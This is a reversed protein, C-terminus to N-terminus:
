QKLAHYFKDFISKFYDADLKSSSYPDYKYNKTLCERYFSLDNSLNLKITIISTSSLISVQSITLYSIARIWDSPIFKRIVHDDGDFIGVCYIYLLIYYESASIFSKIEERVKDGDGLKNYTFAHREELNNTYYVLEVKQNSISAFCRFMQNIIDDSNLIGVINSSRFKSAIDESVVDVPDKKNYIINYVRNHSKYSSKDKLIKHSEEVEDIKFSKLPTELKNLRNLTMDILQNNYGQHIYRPLVVVYKRDSVDKGFFKLTKESIYEGNSNDYHVLRSYIPLYSKYEGDEFVVSMFSSSSSISVTGFVSEILGNIEDVGISYMKVYGLSNINQDYDVVWARTSPDYVLIDKNMYRYSGKYILKHYKGDKKSLSLLYEKPHSVNGHEDLGDYVSIIDTKDVMGFTPHDILNKSNVYGNYIDSWVGDKKLMLSGRYDEILASREYYDGDMLISNHRNIWKGHFKSYNHDPVVMSGDTYRMYVQPNSRNAFYDLILKNSPIDIYGFSDMYPYYKYKWGILSITINDTRDGYYTHYNKGCMFKASFWNKMKQEDHDFRTYIRDLFYRCEFGRGPDLKWVLARALLKNDEVYVLLQCVDPNQVYIDLYEQCEKHKMCSSNLTGGGSVYMTYLYWKRIDEGSVLFIDDKKYKQDWANKYNNVFNEIEKDAFKIGNFDLIQRISRGIKSVNISKDFPNQDLDQIRKVHADNVFSIEDNNSSTKIYNLNTKVDKGFLNMLEKAVDNGSDSVLKVLELFNQDAVLISELIKFLNFNFIM